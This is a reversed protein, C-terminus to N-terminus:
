RNRSKMLDVNILKKKNTEWKANRTKFVNEANADTDSRRMGFQFKTSTRNMECRRDHTRMAASSKSTSLNTNNFHMTVRWERERSKPTGNKGSTQESKKQAETKKNTRCVCTSFLFQPLFFMSSRVFFNRFFVDNQKCKCWQQCKLSWLIPLFCEVWYKCNFFIGVFRSKHVCNPHTQASTHTQTDSHMLRSQCHTKKAEAVECQTATPRTWESAREREKAHVRECM